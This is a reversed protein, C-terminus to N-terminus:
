VPEVLWSLCLTGISSPDTDTYDHFSLAEIYYTNGAYLYENLYADLDFGSDDDYEAYIPDPPNGQYIVLVTDYITSGYTRVTLYQDVPPIYKFWLPRSGSGYYDRAEIEGAGANEEFFPSAIQTLDYATEWTYNTSGPGGPGQKKVFEVEYESETGDSDFTVTVSYTPIGDLSDTELTFTDEEVFLEYPVVVGDPTNDVAAGGAGWRSGDPMGADSDSSVYDIGYNEQSADSFQLGPDGTAGGGFSQEASSSQEVVGPPPQASPMEPNPISQSSVSPDSRQTSDLQNATNVTPTSQSSFVVYPHDARFKPNNRHDDFPLIMTPQNQLAAKSAEKNVTVSKIL